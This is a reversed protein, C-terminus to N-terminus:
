RRVGNFATPLGCLGSLVDAILFLGIALFAWKVVFMAFKSFAIDDDKWNKKPTQWIIQQTKTGYEDKKYIITPPAEGVSQKFKYAFDFVVYSLVFFLGAGFIEFIM